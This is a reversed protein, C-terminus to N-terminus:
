IFKNKLHRLHKLNNIQKNNEVNVAPLIWSVTSHDIIPLVIKDLVDKGYQIKLIKEPNHPAYVWINEFKIKQLPFIDSKDWTENKIFQICEKNEKYENINTIEKCRTLYNSQPISYEFLIDIFPPNLNTADLKTLRFASIAEAAMTSFTLKLGHKKFIHQVNPNLLKDIDKMLIHIDMDDDWPIFGNYRMTGLLTGGSVWNKIDLSDLTNRLVVYMNKLQYALQHSMMNVNNKPLNSIPKHKVRDLVYPENKKLVNKFVATHGKIANYLFITTIFLIFFALIITIDYFLVYNIKYNKM